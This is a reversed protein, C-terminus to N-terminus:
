SRSSVRAGRVPDPAAGAEAWWWLRLKGSGLKAAKRTDPDVRNATVHVHPHRTDDHGVILAEHGELGLAELSGDM